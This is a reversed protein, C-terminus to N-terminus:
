FYMQALCVFVVMLVVPYGYNIYYRMWGYVRIKGAAGENAEGQFRYFKWRALIYVLMVAVGLAMGTAALFNFFDFFGLGLAKFEAICIITAARKRNLGVRNDCATAVLAKSGGLLGDTDNRFVTDAAKLAQIVDNETGEVAPSFRFLHHGDPLFLIM